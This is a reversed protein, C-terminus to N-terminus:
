EWPFVIWKNESVVNGYFKLKEIHKKKTFICATEHKINATTLKNTVWDITGGTDCIDDVILINSDKTFKSINLDDQVTLEGKITDNYSSVSCTVLPIDLVYSIITAPIIGGRAIGVIHTFNYKKARSAIYRSLMNLEDFTFKTVEM